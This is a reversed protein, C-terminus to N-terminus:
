DETLSSDKFETLLTSALNHVWEETGVRCNNM